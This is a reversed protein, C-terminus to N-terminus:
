VNQAQKLFLLFKSRILTIMMLAENRLEDPTAKIIRNHAKEIEFCANELDDITRRNGSLILEMAVIGKDWGELHSRPSWNSGFQAFMVAKVNSEKFFSRICEFMVRLRELEELEEVDFLIQKVIKM